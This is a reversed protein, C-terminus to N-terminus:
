LLILTIALQELHKSTDTVITYETAVIALM